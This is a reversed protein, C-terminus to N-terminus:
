VVDLEALLRRYAVSIADPGKIHLEESLDLSLDEPHQSEVIVRDQDMVHETLERRKEFEGPELEFNRLVYLYQTSEGRSHPTVCYYLTEVDTTGNRTLRRYVTFPRCLRYAKHQGLPHVTNPRDTYEYRLEEGVREIDLDPVEPFEPDGLLGPHVWPFHGLDSFNETARAASCRWFLPGILHHSFAEDDWEPMPAIPARPEGLCVWVLGYREECSFRQARAKSPITLDPRSPIRVCAGSSDYSWGHYRCVLHEGDIWGLSLASGRHPCLDLLAVVEAGLRVIVIQEGLLTVPIPAAGVDDTVAVPHWYDRLAPWLDAENRARAGGEIAQDTM